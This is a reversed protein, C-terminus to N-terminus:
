NVCYWWFRCVYVNFSVLPAICTCPVYHVQQGELANREHPALRGSTPTAPRKFCDALKVDDSLSEAALSTAVGAVLEQREGTVDAAQALETTTDDDDASLDLSLDHGCADGLSRSLDLSKNAAAMICSDDDDRQQATVADDDDDGSAEASALHPQEPLTAIYSQLM